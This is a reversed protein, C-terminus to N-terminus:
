LVDRNSEATAWDVSITGGDSMMLYTREYTIPTQVDKAFWVNFLVQRLKGSIGFGPMYSKLYKNSRKLVERNM